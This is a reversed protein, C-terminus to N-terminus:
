RPELVYERGGWRIPRRSALDAAGRWLIRATVWSGYPHWCMGWPPVGLLRHIRWLAVGQAAVWFALSWLMAMKLTGSAGGGSWSDPALLAVLGLVALLPLGVGVVACEIAKRRLRAIVRSCLEIFIRRWGVEFEAQSEYMKVRLMGDSISLGVPQRLRQAVARAFAMDELLDDKVAAHGGVAEYTARPFLLFQGNGFARPNDTLNAKSVPYMQVMTAVVVPQVRREFQRDNSLTSLVSLLGLQRACSEGVAARILRPDFQTDADTFLLMAGTAAAAGIRAANCKGAWDAPCSDVEIIRLRPDAAALRALLAATNDTCRDLVIIVEFEPYDSALLSAACAPAHQEENHAPVIVSVKPWGGQPVPRELGAAIRPAKLDEIAVRLNVVGWYVTLCVGSVIGAFILVTLLM